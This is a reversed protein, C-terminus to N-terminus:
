AAPNASPIAQLFKTSYTPINIYYNLKLLLKKLNYWANIYERAKTLLPM